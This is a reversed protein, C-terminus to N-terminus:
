RVDCVGVLELRVPSSYPRLVPTWLLSAMGANECFYKATGCFKMSFLIYSHLWYLPVPFFNLFLCLPRVICLCFTFSVLARFLSCILFGDFAKHNNVKKRKSMLMRRPIAKRKERRSLLHSPQHLPAPPQHRCRPVLQPALTERNQKSWPKQDAYHVSCCSFFWRLLVM